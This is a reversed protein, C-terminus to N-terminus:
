QSQYAEQPSAREWTQFEWTQIPPFPRSIAVAAAYGKGVVLNVVPVLPAGVCDGPPRAFIGAGQAKLCAEKRTWLQFFREAYLCEEGDNLWALETPSFFRKAVKEALPVPGIREVDIGTEAVGTVAILALNESHTLNFHLNGRGIGPALAPKGCVGYEFVLSRPPQELYRGLLTRLLSRTLIFRDRDREFRFRDARVMEDPSLMALQAALNVSFEGPAPRLDRRWLHLETHPWSPWEPSLSWDAAHIKLENIM